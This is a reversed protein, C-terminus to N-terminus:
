TYLKPPSSFVAADCKGGKRFNVVLRSASRLRPLKSSSLDNCIIM